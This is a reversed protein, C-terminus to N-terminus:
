KERLNDRITKMDDLFKRPGYSNVADLSDTLEEDSIAQLKNIAEPSRLAQTLKKNSGFDSLARLFRNNQQDKQLEFDGLNQLAQAFKDMGGAYEAGLADRVLRDIVEQRKPRGHYPQLDLSRDLRALADRAARAKPDEAAKPFLEDYGVRIASAILRAAEYDVGETTATSCLDRLLDLTAQRSYSADRLDDLLGQSWSALRAAALQITPAHGFPEDDCAGAVKELEKRLDEVQQKEYDDRDEPRKGRAVHRIAPGLLAMSWLRLQPRGPRTRIRGGDPLKIGYGRQQRWSPVALEHHCAYCDSHSMAVAPWAQMAREATVEEPRLPQGTKGGARLEPWVSWADLKTEKNGRAAILRMTTRFAMVSGALAQRTNEYDGAELHYDRRIKPNTPDLYRVSKADRWHQPLNKSFLAIEVPPLPPHGAAYMAHTIVKGEAANGVHCSLCLAARRAPERLDNMGRAEKEEPTKGRWDPKSHDGRWDPSVGHCGACSVGEELAYPRGQYPKLHNMAHCNLCGAGPDDAVGSPLGAKKLREVMQGGRSGTLVAYAQAHKDQTKWTAYETLLVFNLAGSDVPNGRPFTHCEMCDAPENFPPAKEGAPKAPDAGPCPAAGALCGLLVLLTARIRLGPAPLLPAPM